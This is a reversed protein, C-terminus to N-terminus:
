SLTFRPLSHGDALDEWVVTVEADIAIQHVPAGVIATTLRVGPADPLAILAPVYPINDKVEAIVAREVITFSFVVGRGSLEPWVVNQSLCNPCFPSPPMRFQDCEACQCATLKHARAAEWFPDSWQDSAFRFLQSPPFKSIRTNM